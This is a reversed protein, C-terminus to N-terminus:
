QIGAKALAELYKLANGGFVMEKEEETIPLDEIFKVTNGPMEMPYDTAFLIRDIGMAKQACDFAAPSDNGSTTVLINGEKFYWSIPHHNKVNPHTMVPADITNDSFGFRNDMRDLLYPLSEGMHGMLFKLNPCEDLFGGLILRMMTIMTDVTFGLGATIFSVGFGKFREYSPCYPHLYVFIGLEEAKKFVPLYKPDDPYADGGFNSNPYWAVFGLEKVCRELEECAADPDNVPLVASGLLRKPYDKISEALVDNVTRALPIQVETPVLDVGASCSLVSVDIGTQDMMAIRKTAYDTMVDYAFGIPLTADEMYTLIGTEPNWMPPDMEALADLLQVSYFHSELDIKM